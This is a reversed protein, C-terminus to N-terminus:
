IVISEQLLDTLESYLQYPLETFFRMSRLYRASVSQMLENRLYLPLRNLVKNLEDDKILREEFWLYDYYQLVKSVLVREVRKAKLFRRMIQQKRLYPYRNKFFNYFLNVIEKIIYALTGACCIMFVIVFCNEFSNRPTNDGYGVTTFTEVTYYISYM